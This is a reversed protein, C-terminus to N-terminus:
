QCLVFGDRLAEAFLRREKEEASGTFGSGGSANVSSGWIRDSRALAQTRLEVEEWDNVGSQTRSMHSPIKVVEKCLMSTATRILERYEPNPPGTLSTTSMNFHRNQAYVRQNPSTPRPRPSPLPSEGRSAGSPDLPSRPTEVSGRRTTDISIRRPANTSVKRPSDVSRIETVVSTASPDLSLRPASPSSPGGRATRSRSPSPPSPPVPSTSPSHLPLHGSSASAKRSSSRGLQSGSRSIPTAPSQASHRDRGRETPTRPEKIQEGNDM